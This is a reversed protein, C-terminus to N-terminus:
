GLIWFIASAVLLVVVGPPTDKERREVIKHQVVADMIPIPIYQEAEWKVASSIEQDTLLPFRITRTFVKAEPLSIAVYKKTIRAEKHLKKVIQALDILAKEDEIVDPSEGKYGVVGSGLLEWSVGSAELEVIKISKSGIDLGVSM